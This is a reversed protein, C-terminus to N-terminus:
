FHQEIMDNLYNEIILVNKDYENKLNFGSGYASKSFIVLQTHIHLQQYKEFFLKREEFKRMNRNLYEMLYFLYIMKDNKLKGNNQWITLRDFLMQFILNILMHLDKTIEYISEFMSKLDHFIGDLDIKFFNSIIIKKLTVVSYCNKHLTKLILRFIAPTINNHCELHNIQIKNIKENNNNITTIIKNYLNKDFIKVNIIKMIEKEFYETCTLNEDFITNYTIISMQELLYEIEKNFIDLLLQFNNNKKFIKNIKEYKVYELIYTKIIDISKTFLETGLSKFSQINKVSNIINNILMDYQNKKLIDNFINQFKVFGSNEMNTKYTDEKNIDQFLKNETKNKMAIWKKKGYENTGLKDIHKKDLAPNKYYKCLRYIYADEMSTPLINSCYTGISKEKIIKSITTIVQDYQEQIEEDNIKLIDNECILNDCKNVCTIMYIKKGKEIEKKIFDTIKNIINIEDTTNTASNVDIMLIIIDFKYFNKEIYEFYTKQTKADNLGPIDYINLLVGKELKQFDKLPEVFYDIEICDDITFKQEQETQKIINDNLLKNNNKIEEPIKQLKKDNTEKYIQPLMTTRKMKMDSYKEVFLANLLTSKGASVAGMIAINIDLRESM